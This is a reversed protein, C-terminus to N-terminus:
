ELQHIAIYNSVSLKNFAKPEIKHTGGNFASYDRILVSLRITATKVRRIALRELIMGMFVFSEFSAEQNLCESLIFLLM